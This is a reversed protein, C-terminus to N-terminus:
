FKKARHFNFWCNLLSLSKLRPFPLSAKCCHDRDEQSASALSERVAERHRGLSFCQTHALLAPQTQSLCLGESVSVVTPSQIGAACSPELSLFGVTSRLPFHFAASLVNKFSPCFKPTLNVPSVFLFLM